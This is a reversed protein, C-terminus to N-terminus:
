STTSSSVSAPIESTTRNATGSADSTNITAVLGDVLTGALGDRILQLLHEVAEDDGFGAARDAQDVHAVNRDIGFYALGHHAALQQHLGGGAAGGPHGNRLECALQFLVHGRDPM